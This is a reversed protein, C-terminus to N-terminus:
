HRRMVGISLFALHGYGFNDLDLDLAKGSGDRGTVFGAQTITSSGPWRNRLNTYSEYGEFGEMILIAM